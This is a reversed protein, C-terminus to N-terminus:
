QMAVPLLTFSEVLGSTAAVHETRDHHVELRAGYVIVVLSDGVIPESEDGRMDLCLTSFDVANPPVPVVSAAM